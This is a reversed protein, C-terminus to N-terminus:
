LNIKTPSVVILGYSFRCGPPLTSYLLSSAPASHSCRSVWANGFNTQILGSGCPTHCYRWLMEIMECSIFWRM